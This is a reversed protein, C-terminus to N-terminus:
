TKSCGFYTGYRNFLDSKASGSTCHMLIQADFKITIGHKLKIVTGRMGDMSVNPLVFYWDEIEAENETTWTVIGECADHVDVHSANVYNYSSTISSVFSNKMFEHCTHKKNEKIEQVKSSLGNTVYYPAASTVIASIAHQVSPVNTLHYIGIEKNAKMGSGVIYMDGRDRCHQRCTNGRFKSLERGLRNCNILHPHHKNAEVFIMMTTVTNHQTIVNLNLVEGASLNIVRASNDFITRYLAGELYKRRKRNLSRMKSYTNYLWKGDKLSLAEVHTKGDIYLFQNPPIFPFKVNTDDIQRGYLTISYYM